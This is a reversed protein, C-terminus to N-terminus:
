VLFAFAITLTPSLATMVLALSVPWMNKYRNLHGKEVGASISFPHYGQGDKAKEKEKEGDVHMVSDETKKDKKKDKVEQSAKNSSTSSIIQVVQSQQCHWDLVKQLRRQEAQEIDFYEKHLKEARTKPSMSVVSRLFEPLHEVVSPSTFEPPIELPAVHELVHDISASQQLVV